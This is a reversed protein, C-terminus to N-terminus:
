IKDLASCFFVFKSIEHFSKKMDHWLNSGGTAWSSNHSESALTTLHLGLNAMEDAYNNTISALGDVVRKLNTVGNLIERLQDRALGFETLTEPPVLEKTRSSLASTAFEDPISRSMDKIRSLIDEGAYTFFFNVIQDQSVVPHRAVLTLFRQLCRRREELFQPTEATFFYNQKSFCKVQAASITNWGSNIIFNQYFSGKNGGMKKPPLKPILRYPFRALLLDHFAVFDNYRRYVM